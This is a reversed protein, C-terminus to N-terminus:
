DEQQEASKNQHESTTLTKNEDGYLGVVAPSSGAIITTSATVFATFTAGVLASYQLLSAGWTDNALYTASFAVYSAVAGSGVALAGTRTRLWGFFMSLNLDKRSSKLLWAYVAAVAMVMLVLSALAAANPYALTVSFPVDATAVRPDVITVAGEYRGADANTKARDVCLEVTAIGRRSWAHATVVTGDDEGQILPAGDERLYNGTVVELEVPQSVDNLLNVPAPTAETGAATSNESTVAQESAPTAERAEAAEAAQSQQQALQSVARRVGISRGFALTPVSDTTPELVPLNSGSPPTEEETATPSFRPRRRDGAASPNATSAATAANSAPVPGDSQLVSPAGCPGGVAQENLGIFATLSLVLALLWIFPIPFLKKSMYTKARQARSQKGGTSSSQQEDKVLGPQPVQNEDRRRGTM